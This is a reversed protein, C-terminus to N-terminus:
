LSTPQYTAIYVIKYKALQTANKCSQRKKNYKPM